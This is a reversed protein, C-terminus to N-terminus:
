LRSRSFMNVGAGLLFLLVLSFIIWNRERIKARLENKQLTCTEDIAKVQKKATNRLDTLTDTKCEKPVSNYMTDITQNATDVLNETPSQKACGSLLITFILLITFRKM